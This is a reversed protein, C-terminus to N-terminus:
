RVRGGDVLRLQSSVYPLDLIDPSLSAATKARLDSPDSISHKVSCLVVYEGDALADSAGDANLKAGVIDIEPVSISRESKPVNPL